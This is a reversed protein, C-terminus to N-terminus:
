AYASWRSVPFAKVGGVVIPELKTASAFSYIRVRNGEQVVHKTEEGIYKGPSPVCEGTLWGTSSSQGGIKRIWVCRASKRTVEFHDVNTQDYGWTCELVDGIELTHAFAKKEAQRKVRHGAAATLSELFKQVTAARSEETRFLHFWARKIAKGRYAIAGAQGRLEGYYVASTGDAARVCAWGTPRYRVSEREAATMSAPHKTIGM